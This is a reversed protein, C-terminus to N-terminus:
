RRSMLEAAAAVIRGRTARGKPTLKEPATTPMRLRKRAYNESEPHQPQATCAGHFPGRRRAPRGASARYGHRRRYGCHDPGRDRRDCMRGKTWRATYEAWKLRM